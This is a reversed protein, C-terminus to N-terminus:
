IAEATGHKCLYTSIYTHMYSLTHESNKKEIHIAFGKKPAKCCDAIIYICVCIYIYIYIYIYIHTHINLYM